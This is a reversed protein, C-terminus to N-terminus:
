VPCGLNQFELFSNVFYAIQVIISPSKVSGFNVCQNSHPRVQTEREVSAVNREAEAISQRLQAERQGFSTEAAAFQAVFAQKSALAEQAQAELAVIRSQSAHLENSVVAESSGAALKARDLQGEMDDLAQQKVEFATKFGQLEEQLDEFLNFLHMAKSSHWALHHECLFTYMFISIKCYPALNHQLEICIWTCPLSIVTAALNSSNHGAAKSLEEIQLCAVDIVSKCGHSLASM